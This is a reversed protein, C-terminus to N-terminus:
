RMLTIDGGMLVVEGTTLEVEVQYVYVGPPQPRQALDNGDWGQTPDNPQFNQKVFLREGWRNYVNFSRIERISQDSQIYFIDNSGDENPSFASAMFVNTDKKVVLAIRDSVSCGNNDTVEVLYSTSILPSVTTSLSAGGTSGITTSWRVSAVQSEPINVQATLVVSDGASIVNDGHEINTNIQVDLQTPPLITLFLSAECGDNSAVQLEYNGAPLNAFFRRDGQPRDNFLVSFPGQGGVISDIIIAGDGAGFCTIPLVSAYPTILGPSAGITVQDSASCGSSPNMVSLTYTGEQSVETIPATPDSIAGVNGGTWEYILGPSTLNSGISAINFQCDLNIDPGANATPSDSIEILVTASSNSCSGGVGSLVYNFRYTGGPLNDLRVTGVQPSFASGVEQPGSEFSWQGNAGPNSLLNLLNVLTDTGACVRPFVTQTGADQPTAALVTLPNPLSVMCGSMGPIGAATVTFTEDAVLTFPLTSGDTIGSYTNSTAGQRIVVDFGMTGAGTTAFDINFPEGACATAPASWDLRLNDCSSTRCSASGLSNRCLFDDDLFRVEISVDTDPALGSVVFSTDSTMQGNGPGNYIVEQQMVDEATWSFIVENLGSSCNVQPIPYQGYVELTKTITESTCGQDVVSLSINESVPGPSNYNFVHPGPGSFSTESWQYVASPSAQGTFTITAGDGPCIAAPMSFDAVPGALVEIQVQDTFTCADEEYSAEITITQGAMAPSATWTSGSVGPGSFTLTGSTISGTITADLTFSTDQDGICLATSPLLGQNIELTIDPCGPTRCSLESRSDPCPGNNELLVEIRVEQGQSLNTFVISTDSTQNGTPGQLVNVQYSMAGPVPNWVFQIQDDTANCSIVPAPLAASVEIFRTVTPAVCQGDDVDLAIQLNGPTDLPVNHPGPGTLTTNQVGNFSWSFSANSPFNGTAELQIPESTCTQDPIVFNAILPDFVTVAFSDEYVCAGETYRAVIMNNQGSQSADPTWTNGSVNTGSWTLTGSGNGGNIAAMLEIPTSNPDPCVPDIPTIVIDIPPCDFPVCTQTSSRRNCLGAGETIVEITVEENISLGTVEYSTTSVRTGTPGQLVNVEFTAGQIDQWSFLISNPGPTCEIVAAEPAGQVNVFRVATESACSGVQMTLSVMKTGTSAWSIEATGTAPDGSEVTGGDFDWILTTDSNPGVTGFAFQATVSEGECATTPISFDAVPPPILEFSVSDTIICSASEFTLYVWQTQGAMSPDVVIRPQTPDFVGAGSWTLTSQTITDRLYYDLDITDSATGSYCASTIPFIDILSADCPAAQCIPDIFNGDCTNESTTVMRVQVIQGPMLNEITYRDEVTDAVGNPGSIVFVVTASSNPPDEWDYVVRELTNDCVVMPTDITPDLFLQQIAPQSLCGFQEYRLSVLKSGPSDWTVHLRNPSGQEVGVGGSFDWVLNTTAPDYASLVEVVSFSDKCLHGDKEFSAQIFPPSLRALLFTASDTYVCGGETYTYLVKQEGPLAFTTRFIGESPNTIHAGSWVGTGTGASGIVEVDLDILSVAPDYCVVSDILFNIQVDPCNGQAYLTSTECVLIIGLIAPFVRCILHKM